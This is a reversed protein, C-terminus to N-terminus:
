MLSVVGAVHPAAQSTGSYGGYYQTDSDFRVGDIYRGPAIIDIHNGYSSFPARTNDVDTAGVAIVSAYGAPYFTIENNQNMMSAVIVVNNESAYALANQLATSTGTGGLSMNIV